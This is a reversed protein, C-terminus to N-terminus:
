KIIQQISVDSNNDVVIIEYLEKPYDQELLSLICTEIRPDNYVPIIVSAKM